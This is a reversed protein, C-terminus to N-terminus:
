EDPGTSAPVANKRGPVNRQSLRASLFRLHETPNDRLARRTRQWDM